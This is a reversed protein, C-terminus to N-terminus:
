MASCVSMLGAHELQQKVTACYLVYIGSVMVSVMIPITPKTCAPQKPQVANDDDMHTTDTIPSVVHKNSM